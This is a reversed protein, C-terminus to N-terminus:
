AAVTSGISLMAVLARYVSAFDSGSYAITRAATRACGPILEIVDAHATSTTDIELLIPPQLVYPRASSSTRMAERAGELLAHRVREPSNNEAAYYSISAKTEIGVAWPLLKKTQAVTTRDGSVFVVPVGYHGALAANIAAEGVPVSNLRCEYITRPSYTHGMVACRDGIAGHYGVFFAADFEPGIGELMYRPKTRGSVLTASPRLREGIINRMSSHSDNVVIRGVGAAAIGDIVANTEDTMIECARRYAPDQSPRVEDWHVLTACGEM